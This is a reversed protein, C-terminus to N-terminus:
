PRVVQALKSVPQEVPRQLSAGRVTAAQKPPAILGANFAPIESAPTWFEEIDKPGVTQRRARALARAKLRLKVVFGVGVGEQAAYWSRAMNRAHNFSSTLFLTSQDLAPIDTWRGARFRSKETPGVALYVTVPMDTEPLPGGYREWAQIAEGLKWLERAEEPTLGSYRAEDMWEAKQALGLLRLAMESMLPVSISTIVGELDIAYGLASRLIAGPLVLIMWASSVIWILGVWTMPGKFASNKLGGVQNRLQAQSLRRRKRTRTAPKANGVSSRTM